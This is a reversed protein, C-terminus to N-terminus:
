RCHSAGAHASHLHTSSGHEIKGGCAKGPKALYRQAEEQCNAEAFTVALMIRDLWNLNRKM